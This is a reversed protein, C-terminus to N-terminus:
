KAKKRSSLFDLANRFAELCSSLLKVLLSLKSSVRGNNEEYDARGTERSLAGKQGSKWGCERDCGVMKAAGRM